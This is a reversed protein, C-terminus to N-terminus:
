DHYIEEIAKTFINAWQERVEKNDNHNTTVIVRRPTFTIDVIGAFPELAFRIQSKNNDSLQSTAFHYQTANYIGDVKVAGNM